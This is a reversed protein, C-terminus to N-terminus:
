GILWQHARYLPRLYRRKKLAAAIQREFYVMPLGVIFLVLGALLIWLAHSGFQVAWRVRIQYAIGIGVFVAMLLVAQVALVKGATRM